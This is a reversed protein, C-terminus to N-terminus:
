QLGRVSGATSPRASRSEVWSRLKAVDRPESADGAAVPPNRVDAVIGPRRAPAVTADGQAAARDHETRLRAAPRQGAVGRRTRRWIRRASSRTSDAGRRRAARAVPAAPPHVEDEPRHRARRCASTAPESRPTDSCPSRRRGPMVPLHPNPHSTVRDQLPRPRVSSPASSRDPSRGECQRPCGLRELM